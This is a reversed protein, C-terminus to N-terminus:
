FVSVKTFQQTLNFQTFNTFETESLYKIIQAKKYIRCTNYLLIDTKDWHHIYKDALPWKLRICLQMQGSTVPDSLVSPLVQESRPKHLYVWSARMLTIESNENSPFILLSPFFFTVSSNHRINFRGTSLSVVICRDLRCCLGFAWM